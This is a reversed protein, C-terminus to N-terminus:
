TSTEAVPRDSTCLVGVSHRTDSYSRRVEYPLRPGSPSDFYMFFLYAKQSTQEREIVVFITCTNRKYMTVFTNRAAETHATCLDITHNCSDAPMSFLQTSTYALYGQHIASLFHNELKPALCPM